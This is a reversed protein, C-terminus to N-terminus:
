GERFYQVHTTGGAAQYVHLRTLNGLPGIIERGGLAIYGPSDTAAHGANIAYYVDADNAAIEVITADTPITCGTSTAGPTLMEGGLYIWEPLCVRSYKPLKM